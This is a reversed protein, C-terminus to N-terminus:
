MYGGLRDCSVNGLYMIIHQQRARCLAAPMTSDVATVHDSAVRTQTKCSMTRMTLCRLQVRRPGLYVNGVKCLTSLIPDFDNFLDTHPYLHNESVKTRPQVSSATNLLLELLCM